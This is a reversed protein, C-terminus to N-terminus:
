DGKPNLPVVWKKEAENSTSYEFYWGRKPHRVMILQQRETRSGLGVRTLPKQKPHQHWCLVAVPSYPGWTDDYDSRMLDRLWEISPNPVHENDPPGEYWLTDM